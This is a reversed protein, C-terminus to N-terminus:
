EANFNLVQNGYKIQLKGDQVMFTEAAQLAKLYAQEQDMRGEPEMCYMETNGIQTVSLNSGEIEYGGFYSNCGASGRVQGEAGTFTASVETGELVTQLNDPDGFSELMWRIDEIESAEETTGACAGFTVLLLSLVAVVILLKIKM